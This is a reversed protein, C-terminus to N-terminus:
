TGPLFSCPRGFRTHSQLTIVTKLAERRHVSQRIKKRPMVHAKKANTSQTQINQARRTGGDLTGSSHTADRTREAPRYAGRPPAPPYVEGYGRGPWSSEGTWPFLDFPLPPRGTRLGATSYLGVQRATVAIVELAEYMWQPTPTTRPHRM